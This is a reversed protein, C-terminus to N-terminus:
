NGFKPVRRIVKSRFSSDAQFKICVYLVSGGQTRIMFSALHAYSRDSVYNRFKPVGLVKSSFSSDVQFKTCFQLVSEKRMPVM